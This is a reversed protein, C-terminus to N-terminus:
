RVHGAAQLEALDVLREVHVDVVQRAWQRPRVLEEVARHVEVVHLLAGASRAPGRHRLVVLGLRDHVLAERM